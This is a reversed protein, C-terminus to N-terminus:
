CIYLFSVLSLEFAQIFETRIEPIFGNNVLVFLMLPLAMVFLVFASLVTARWSIKQKSFMVYIGLLLVTTPVVAWTISYSYLAAGYMMASLIWYRNNKLGKVFFFLGFLLFSPALNSELGWRSLMIHWPSIAFVFLGTLAIKKNFMEKLSFTLDSYHNTIVIGSYGLEKYKEVLEKASIKACQSTEKTHSHIEYKM